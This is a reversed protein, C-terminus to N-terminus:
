IANFDTHRIADIVKKTTECTGKTINIDSPLHKYITRYRVEAPKDEWSALEAKKADLSAGLAGIRLNNTEVVSKYTNANMRAETLELRTSIVAKELNTIEISTMVQLSIIAVALAAIIYDKMTFMTYM